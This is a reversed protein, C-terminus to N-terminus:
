SFLHRQLHSGQSELQMQALLPFEINNYTIIVYFCSKTRITTQKIYILELFPLLPHYIEYTSRVTNVSKQVGLYKNCILAKSCFDTVFNSIKLSVLNLPKWVVYHM